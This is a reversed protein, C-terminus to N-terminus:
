SEDKLSQYNIKGNALRPIEDVSIVKYATTHLKYLQDIHHKIDTVHQSSETVVLMRDDNGTCAVPQQLLVELQKEVEDLNIRLGFLKIFRKMRGTITFFGEEDVTATDGTYLTGGYEDGKALDKLTEAYGLMVNDGYYILEGTNSALDLRGGPIPIGICGPKDLVRNSPIYSIRPAAETQGYMVFFRKGLEMAYEGFLRVLREELRGGAQTLTQLHPLNMKFFGVRELMRYTFPVGPLSTAHGDRVFEWFSKAVVSERTLLVAAGAQFHSNLISLGYSYSLPLNLIGREDSGINLYQAIAAANSQLNTYSLRVFKQSGTTGSTSLLVALEPHIFAESYQERELFHGLEQYGAFLHQENSGVIWKPQYTAVIQELLEINAAANMLMVAQGAQLAAVYAAVVEIVHDCLLLVLEKHSSQFEYQNAMAQLEAYTLKRQETIVAYREGLSQINFFM